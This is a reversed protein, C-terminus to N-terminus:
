KRRLVRGLVSRRMSFIAFDIAYREEKWPDASNSYGRVEWYGPEDERALKIGRLWKASKYFYRKPVLARVPGGHEPELDEGEYRYAILVDNDMLVELPLNTTFGQECELVAYRASPRPQVIAMLEKFHVGEWRTDLKSWSTVCHIDCVLTTRPLQLFEPYTYTVPREVEGHITLTWNEKGLYYPVEGAHLIPFKTTVVQGPPIRSSM